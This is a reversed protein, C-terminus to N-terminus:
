RRMQMGNGNAVMTGAVGSTVIQTTSVPLRHLEGRRDDSRRRVRRRGRPRLDPAVQRDQLRGDRRDAQLRGDHRGRPGGRRRHRGLAPHARALRPDGGAQRLRTRRRGDELLKKIDEKKLAKAAEAAAVRVQGRGGRRSGPSQKGALKEELFAANKALKQADKNDRAAEAAPRVAAAAGVVAAVEHRGRRRHQPRLPGAPLRDAGAALLGMGKQGDNSGHAFSVGGCTAILVGRIWWRRATTASRRRTCGRRRPRRGETLLLLLASRRVRRLPSVFLGMGVDRRGQGLERRQHGPRGCATPWASASSSASSRTRVAVGAPRRVVHRPEVGRRGAAAVAGHGARGDLRGTSSCTSRCCTSSASPSRRHRRHLVGLFNMVGSYVVAPRPRCAHPHLHGHHRRQRHRPLRQHVRLLACALALLLIVLPVLPLTGLSDFLNM